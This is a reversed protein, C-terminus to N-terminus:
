RKSRKDPVGENRVSTDGVGLLPCAVVPTDFRLIDPGPIPRLWTKTVDDGVCVPQVNEPQEFGRCRGPLVFPPLESLLEVVQQGSFPKRVFKGAPVELRPVGGGGLKTEVFDDFIGAAHEATAELRGSRGLQSVM